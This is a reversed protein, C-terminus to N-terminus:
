QTEGYIAKVAKHASQQLVAIKEESLDYDPRYANGVCSKGTLTEFWVCANLYQGGGVNGDHHKDTNDTGSADVRNCLTDGILVNERAIDWASGSPVNDVAYKQCIYNALGVANADRLKQTQRDAVKNNADSAHQYGIQSSWTQHWLYRANPFKERLYGYLEEAYPETLAKATDVTDIYTTSTENFDGSYYAELPFQEPTLCVDIYMDCFYYRQGFQPRYYKCQGGDSAEFLVYSRALTWMDTYADYTTTEIFDKTPEMFYIGDVYIRSYWEKKDIIKMLAGHHDGHAHSIFWAEVIPKEGDPTLSELYDLLYPADYTRGGDHIIFHGNKLQIVFSAGNNNLQLMHLTTKADASVGKVYEEKYILHESLAMGKVASIYTKELNIAHSVTVTLEDKTYSATIAYGDMADKGNDSHKKFGSKELTDLYKLYDETTTGNVDIVYHGNGYDAAEGVKSNETVLSPVTRFEEINTWAAFTDTSTVKQQENTVDEENGKNGLFMVLFAGGALLVLCLMLILITATKKQKM